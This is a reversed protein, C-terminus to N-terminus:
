RKRIIPGRNVVKFNSFDKLSLPTVDARERYRAYLAQLAIMSRCSDACPPVHDGNHLICFQAKLSPAECIIGPLEYAPLEHNRLSYIAWALSYVTDDHAGRAAEFKARFGNNGDAVMKYTFDALEKRLLAFSPHIRLRHERVLNYLHTFINSQKDPTAHVLESQFKQEQSWALVDQANYSEISFNSLTWDNAYQRVRTKISEASSFKVHNSDLVYFCEEEGRLFKVVATLITRDGNLSFGYARDLGAGVKFAAGNAIVSPAFAYDELCAKIDDEAFLASTGSAWLNLHQQAFVQPLMTKALSRVTQENIWKPLKAIAEELTQYSIYSIHIGADGEQWASWLGYLPSAKSGVTSDIMVLGDETDSTSGKLINYNEDSDAAHLESCQAVTLKIGYLSASNSPYGKIENNLSDWRIFDAGVYIEKESRDGSGSVAVLPKYYPTNLLLGRVIKFCTSVTQTKSNSILGIAENANVTFRWVIVLASILTKGHRRPWCWVVTGAPSDIAACVEAKIEESPFEFPVWQKKHNLIRPQVDELWRLFGASGGRWLAVNHKATKKSPSAELIATTM